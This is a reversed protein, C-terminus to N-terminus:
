ITLSRGLKQGVERAVRARFVEATKSDRWQSSAADFDYHGASFNAAFWIQRSPAQMNGVFKLGDEFEITLIDSALDVTLEAIPDLAKAVAELEAHARKRYEAEDLM